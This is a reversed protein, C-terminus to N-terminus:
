VADLIKKRRHAKNKQHSTKQDRKFADSTSALAKSSSPVETLSPPALTDTGFTYNDGRSELDLLDFNDRPTSAAMLAQRRELAGRVKNGHLCLPYAVQSADRKQEVYRDVDSSCARDLRYSLVQKTVCGNM